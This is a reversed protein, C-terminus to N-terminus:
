TMEQCQHPGHASTRCFGPEHARAGDPVATSASVSLPGPVGGSARRSHRLFAAPSLTFFGGDCQRENTKRPDARSRVGERAAAGVANRRGAARHHIDGTEKEPLLASLRLGSSRPSNHRHNLPAPMECGFFFFLSLFAVRTGAHVNSVQLKPGLIRQVDRPVVSQFCAANNTGKASM